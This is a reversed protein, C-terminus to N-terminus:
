AYRPRGLFRRAALLALSGLGIRGLLIGRSHRRRAGLGRGGLGRRQKKFLRALAAGGLAKKFLGM